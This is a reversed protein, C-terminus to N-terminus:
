TGQILVHQNANRTVLCCESRYHFKAVDDGDTNFGLVGGGTVWHELERSYGKASKYNMELAPSKAGSKADAVKSMPVMAGKYTGEPWYHPDFPRGYYADASGRDKPSGNYEPYLNKM